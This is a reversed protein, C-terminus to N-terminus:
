RSLPRPRLHRYAHLAFIEVGPALDRRQAPAVRLDAGYRGKDADHAVHVVAARNGIHHELMIGAHGLLGDGADHFM